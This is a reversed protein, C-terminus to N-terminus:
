IHPLAAEERVCNFPSPRKAGNGGEPSPPHLEKEGKLLGVGQANNEGRERRQQFFGLLPRQGGPSSSARGREYREGRLCASSFGSATACSDREIKEESPPRRKGTLPYLGIKVEEERNSFFCAGM